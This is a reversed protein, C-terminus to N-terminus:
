QTLKTLKQTDTYILTYIYPSHTHIYFCASLSDTCSSSTTHKIVTCGIRFQLSFHSNDTKTTMKCTGTMLPIKIESHNTINYSGTFNWLLLKLEWSEVTYFHGESKWFGYNKQFCKWPAWEHSQCHLVHLDGQETKKNPPPNQNQKKKPHSNLFIIYNDLLHQNIQCKKNLYSFLRIAKLIYCLSWGGQLIKSANGSSFYYKFLSQIVEPRKLM